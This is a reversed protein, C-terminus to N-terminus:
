VSFETYLTSDRELDAVKLHVHGIGCRTFPARLLMSIVSTSYSQGLKPLIKEVPALFHRQALAVV